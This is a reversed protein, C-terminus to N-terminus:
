FIFTMGLNKKKKKLTFILIWMYNHGFFYFYFYFLSYFLLFLVQFHSFFILLAVLPSFVHLDM